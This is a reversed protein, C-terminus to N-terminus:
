AGPLGPMGPLGGALPSMRDATLQDVQRAADRVAAVVLDQLTEVDDPDVASPAITVATLEGSGSMTATVLGGGASGTVQENALQEQAAALAQQMQQAQALLAQLDPQGGGGPFM